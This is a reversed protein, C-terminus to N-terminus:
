VHEAIYHLLEETENWGLCGDTVSKGYVTGSIEQRGAEIFSEIMVGRVIMRIEESRRRSELVDYIIM